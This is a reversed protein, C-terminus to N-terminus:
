VLTEGHEPPPDVATRVLTRLGGRKLKPDTGHDLLMTVLDQIDKQTVRKLGALLQCAEALAPFHAVHQVEVKAQNRKCVQTFIQCMGWIIPWCASIIGVAFPSPAVRGQQNEPCFFDAFPKGLITQLAGDGPPPAPPSNCLSVLPQLVVRLVVSCRQPAETAAAHVDRINQHAEGGSMLRVAIAHMGVLAHGITKPDKWQAASCLAGQVAELVEPTQFVIGAFGAGQKVGVDGGATCTADAMGMAKDDGAPKTKNKGKRKQPAEMTEPAAQVVANEPVGPVAPKTPGGHILLSTVLEMFTRSAM